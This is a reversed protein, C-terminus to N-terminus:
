GGLVLSALDPPLGKNIKSELTSRGRDQDFKRGTWRRDDSGGFDLKIPKRIYKPRPPPNRFLDHVTAWWGLSKRLGEDISNICFSRWKTELNAAQDIYVLMMDFVHDFGEPSADQYAEKPPVLKLARSLKIEQEKILPRFLVELRIELQDRDAKITHDQFSPYLVSEWMSDGKSKRFLHERAIRSPAFKAVQEFISRLYVRWPRELNTRHIGEMGVWESWRAFSVQSLGPQTVYILVKRVVRSVRDLPKMLAGKVRYGKGLYGLIVAPRVPMGCRIILQLLADLSQCAVQAEKLAVPTCDVGEVVFRKAFEWTGNYSVLSKAFSINVGILDMLRVYESAVRRDWIVVDDGLVAYREFWHLIGARHAALQILYHHTLALMAWSSYAGMPQGVAYHLERGIGAYKRPISYARRVLLDRWPDGAGPWIGDILISQLWAPLRDTAASLDYSAVFGTTGVEKRIREVAANQDFTGDQPITKLIAFLADHMPKLVLQTWYDVMAFVRVKGPEQKAGLKGMPRGFVLGKAGLSALSRIVDSTLGSWSPSIVKQLSDM